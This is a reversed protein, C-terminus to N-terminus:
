RKYAVSEGQLRRGFVDFRDGFSNANFGAGGYNRLSETTERAQMEIERVREYTKKALDYAVKALAAISAFKLVGSAKSALIGGAAVGEGDINSEDISPTMGGQEEVGSDDKILKIEIDAM